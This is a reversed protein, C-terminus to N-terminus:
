KVRWFLISFSILWGIIGFPLILRKPTARYAVMGLATVIGVTVLFIYPWVKESILHEVSDILVLAALICVPVGAFIMRRAGENMGRPNQKNMM